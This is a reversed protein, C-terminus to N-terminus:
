KVRPQLQQLFVALSPALVQHDRTGFTELWVEGSVNALSVVTMEAETTALFLTPPLKLRKQTLLHGILNEQMRVLDDESWSQLLVCEIDQYCAAMDGAYQSTYFAVIDPHLSIDLAREVGSLDAAPSGPQSVWFVQDDGSEVICPSPIGFLDASTPFHGYHQQWAEVYRQTFAQLAQRASAQSDQQQMVVDDRKLEAM